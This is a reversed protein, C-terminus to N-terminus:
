HHYSEGPSILIWEIVDEIVDSNLQYPDDCLNELCAIIMINSIDRKQLAIVRSTLAETLTPKCAEQDLADSLYVQIDDNQMIMSGESEILNM